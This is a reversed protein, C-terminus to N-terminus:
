GFLHAFGSRGPREHRSGADYWVNVAVATASPDPALIVRRGNELRYSEHPIEGPARPQQAAAAGALALAAVAPALARWWRPIM